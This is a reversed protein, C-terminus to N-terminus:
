SECYLEVQRKKEDEQTVPMLASNSSSNTRSPCVVRGAVVSDEVVIDRVPASRARATLLRWKRIRKLKQSDCSFLEGLKPLQNCDNVTLM